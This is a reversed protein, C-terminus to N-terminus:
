CRRARRVRRLIGVADVLARRLTVLDARDDFQDVRRREYTTWRCGCAVCMRRRRVAGWEVEYRSDIIRDDLDGCAPCIM